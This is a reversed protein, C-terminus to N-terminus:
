VVFAAQGVEPKLLAVQKLVRANTCFGLVAFAQYIDLLRAFFINLGYQLFM